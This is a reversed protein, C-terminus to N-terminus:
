DNENNGLMKMYKKLGLYITINSIGIIIFLNISTFFINNLGLLVPLAGIFLALTTLGFAFGKNNDFINSLVILTIPMTINFLFAAIIGLTPNNFAFLFMISSILLSMFSTNILGLKDGLIGGLMKGIVIGCVFILSIIYNSKWNFNLILGTYGRICITLLLCVMIFIKKSNFILKPTKNNIKYNLKIIRYLNLLLLISIFLMFIVIYSQNFKLISSGLFLGLAGPAVFIGILSSKKNSINLVDIGGGIHFLANGIGAIICALINIPYILYALIILTCGISSVISNKNLKDAIIGFPLQFAFAFLNYSLVALFLNFENFIFPIVLKALLFSCAFDVIFHIISYTTVIYVTKKIINM